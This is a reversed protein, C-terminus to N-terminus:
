VERHLMDFVQKSIHQEAERIHRPRRAIAQQRRKEQKGRRLAKKWTDPSKALAATLEGPTLLLLQNGPLEIKLM